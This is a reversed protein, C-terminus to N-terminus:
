REPNVAGILRMQVGCEVRNNPTFSGVPSTYPLVGDVFAPNFGRTPSINM